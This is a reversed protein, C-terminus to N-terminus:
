ATQLMNEKFTTPYQGTQTKFFRSFKAAEDFGLDYGIEKASKDTFMLMRKAEMAIREHIVQLPTKSYFLNFLNSLTKPSKNLMAAYDAVKHLQRYNLEVLRNYTRVVDLETETYTLEGYLQQKALRTLIIIMRKLLIRLMEGQVNDQNEFEEGFIRHLSNLKTTEQESLTLIVAGKTGLFLVGSCSVEKDHDIVCYFDRNFQFIVTGETPTFDIRNEFGLAMVQGEKITIPLGDVMISANQHRQWIFTFCMLPDQPKFSISEFDTYCWLFGGSQPETYKYNMILPLTNEKDTVIL